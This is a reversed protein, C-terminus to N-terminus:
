LGSRDRSSQVSSPSSAAAGLQPDDARRTLALRPAQEVHTIGTPADPETERLVNVAPALLPDRGDRFSQERVILWYAKDLALARKASPLLLTSVDRALQQFAKARAEGTPGFFRALVEDNSRYSDGAHNNRLYTAYEPLGDERLPDPLPAGEGLHPVHYGLKRAFAFMSDETASVGGHCGMCFVTEEYAQPRLQGSRDEIFGQLVWGAANYLGHEADGHFQEPRDPNLVADKAERQAHDSLQAYTLWRKKRAYRLEKMRPAPYVRGSADVALYRVSHLFETGQPFLGSALHVRSQAYLAGAQGVYKMGFPEYHVRTALGLAGDGDLDVALSREDTEAIAVDQRRILAEIIALNLAYVNLDLEGALDSRFARPLRILVDDFSGNAPMFGGPLPYYAFV